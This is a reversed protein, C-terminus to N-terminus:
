NNEGNKILSCGAGGASESSGGSGGTGDSVAAEVCDGGTSTRTCAVNLREGAAATFSLSSTFAPLLTASPPAAEGNSGRCPTYGSAGRYSSGISEVDLTYSAGATLGVIQFTGDASGASAFDGSLASIADGRPNSVNRAVINGCQIQTSGDTNYLNGTLTWTSSTFTTSPYLQAIAAKDDTHPIKFYSGNGLIFTPFMTNILNNDTDDDNEAETKNVQSHDLGLFHGMEHVMFSTFDDDSFGTIGAASCGSQLEGELCAANFVAGGKIAVGTTANSLAISAFGLYIYRARSGSVDCFFQCMISGDEDIILPNIGNNQEATTCTPAAYLYECVNTGDIDASIERRTITLDAESLDDWQSLADDILASVNKSGVLVDQEVDVYVAGNAWKVPSGDSAVDRPGIAQAKISMLATMLTM